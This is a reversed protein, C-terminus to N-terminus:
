VSHVWNQCDNILYSRSQPQKDVIPRSYNAKNVNFELMPWHAKPCCNFNSAMLLDM